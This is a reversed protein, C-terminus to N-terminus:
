KYIEAKACTVFHVNKIITLFKDNKLNASVRCIVIRDNLLFSLINVTCKISQYYFILM